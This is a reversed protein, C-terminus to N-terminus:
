KPYSRRGCEYFIFMKAQIQTVSNTITLFFDLKTTGSQIHPPSIQLLVFARKIDGKGAKIIRLEYGQIGVFFAKVYM